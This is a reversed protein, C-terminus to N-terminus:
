MVCFIIPRNRLQFEICCPPSSAECLSVCLTIVAAAAPVSPSLSPSPVECCHSAPFYSALNPGLTGELSVTLCCSTVYQDSMLMYEIAYDGYFCRLYDGLRAPMKDNCLM